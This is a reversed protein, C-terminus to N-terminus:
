RMNQMRYFDECKNYVNTFGIQSLQKIVKGNCYYPDYIKLTAPTKGLNSAVMELVRSIDEYARQSTECHDTKEVEYPYDPGDKTETKARKVEKGFEKKSAQSKNVVGDQAAKLDNM